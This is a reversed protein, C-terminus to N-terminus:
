PEVEPSGDSPTGRKEYERPSDLPDPAVCKLYLWIMLWVVLTALPIGVVIYLFIWLLDIM